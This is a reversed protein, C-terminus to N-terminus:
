PMALTSVSVSWGPRRLKLNRNRGAEGAAQGDAGADRDVAHAEGHRCQVALVRRAEVDHLLAQRQGRQGAQLRAAADVDLARGPVAGLDAAVRQRPWTSKM